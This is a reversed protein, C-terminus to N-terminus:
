LYQCRKRLGPPDIRTGAWGAAVRQGHVRCSHREEVEDFDDLSREIASIADEGSAGTPVFVEAREMISPNRRAVCHPVREALDREDVLCSCGRAEPIM